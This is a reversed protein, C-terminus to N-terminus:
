GSVEEVQGRFSPASLAAAEVAEPFSPYAHMTDAIGSLPVHNKMCVAIEAIVSSADPGIIHAGAILGDYADVVLKVVGKAEGAIIARDLDAFSFSHTQVIMGRAVAERETLGISAVEPEIYTCRPVVRHDFPEPTDTFANQAALHGEYSAVHTFMYGGGVDGAAWIHPASTRLYPDVQVCAATLQVGARELNMGEVAARRGVAVLITDCEVSKAGEATRVSIRRVGAELSVSEAAASELIDIGEERLFAAALAAIEADERPLITPGREIVTVEAGFRRFLQAFELGIPGGGLIALRRPLSTLNVAERNTIFGAEVLGPIPPILPMTGSAIIIHKARVTNSGVRVVHEDELSAREHFYSAGFRSLGGDAPGDGAVQKLVRDKYAMAESFDARTVNAHIGFESARRVMHWVHAARVMAKTPVCGAWFCEGGLEREEALAVTRGSRAATRAAKLGASGGGIVVLDFEEM